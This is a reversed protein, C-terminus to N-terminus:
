KTSDIITGKGEYVSSLVSKSFNYTDSMAGQANKAKNPTGPSNIKDLTQTVIDGKIKELSVAAGAVAAQATQNTM